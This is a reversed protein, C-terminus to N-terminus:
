GEISPRFQPAVRKKSAQEYAYAIRILEPESYATGFFSMGVPLGQALGLPVTIHPYGAIAAPGSLGYSINGDGNVLDISWSPGYSPGSIADLQHEKLLNDIITRAATLNKKVKEQYDPSDLGAKAESSELIDQPFYPM